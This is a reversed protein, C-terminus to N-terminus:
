ASLEGAGSKGKLFIEGDSLLVLPEEVEVEAGVDVATRLVLTVILYEGVKSVKVRRVVSRSLVDPAIDRRPLDRLSNRAGSLGLAFRKDFSAYAVLVTLLLM